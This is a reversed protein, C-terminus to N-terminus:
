FLRKVSSIPGARDIVAQLPEVVCSLQHATAHLIQTPTVLIGTHGPWYVVDQPQYDDPRVDHTLFREQDGSDRPIAVGQSQALAQILGSCDIGAPTRGGWLYPSGLFVGLALQVASAPYHENVPLCHASWVYHGCQTQSFSSDPLATLILEAGFPLRHLLQSKLNSESFLLTSRHSIRHTSSLAEAPLAEGLLSSKVFGEYSDKCLRVYSWEGDSSLSEVQEGYLVESTCVASTCPEALVSGVPHSLRYHHATYHDAM